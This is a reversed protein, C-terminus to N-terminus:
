VMAVPRGRQSIPTSPCTLLISRLWGPPHGLLRLVWATASLYAGPIVDDTSAERPGAAARTSGTEVADGAATASAVRSECCKGGAWTHPVAGRGM